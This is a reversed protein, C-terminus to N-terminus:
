RRHLTVLRHVTRFGLRHYIRRAGHNDDWMGLSVWDAGDGLLARTPGAILAGGLGTGRAEPRVGLGHLHWSGRGALAGPRPEAGVVGLLAGDPGDVGWWREGAAGPRAQTSPNAVALCDSAAQRDDATLARLRDQVPSVDPATRTVMWEWGTRNARLGLTTLRERVAPLADTAIWASVLSPDVAHEILPILASTEGVAFLLQGDPVPAPAHETSWWGDLVPDLRM